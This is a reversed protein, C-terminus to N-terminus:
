PPTSGPNLVHGIPPPDGDIGGRSHQVRGVGGIGIFLRLDLVVHADNMVGYDIEQPLRIRGVLIEGCCDIARDGVHGISQARIRDGRGFIRALRDLFAKPM